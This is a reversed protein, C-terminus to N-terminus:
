RKRGGGKQFEIPRHMPNHSAAGSQGRMYAAEAEMDIITEDEDAPAERVRSRQAADTAHKAQVANRGSLADDVASEVAVKVAANEAAVVDVTVDPTEETAGLDLAARVRGDFLALFGQWERREPAFPASDGAFADQVTCAFEVPPAAGLV